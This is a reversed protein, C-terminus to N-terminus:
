LFNEFNMMKSDNEDTAASNKKNIMASNDLYQNETILMIININIFEYNSNM